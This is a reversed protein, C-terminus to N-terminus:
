VTDAKSSKRRRQAPPQRDIYGGAQPEVSNPNLDPIAAVEKSVILMVRATRFARQIREALVADTDHPGPPAMLSAAFQNILAVDDKSYLDAM